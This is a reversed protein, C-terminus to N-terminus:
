VTSDLRLSVNSTSFPTTLPQSSGRMGVTRPTRRRPKVTSARLSNTIVWPAELFVLEMDHSLIQAMLLCFISGTIGRKQPISFADRTVRVNDSPGCCGVFFISFTWGLSGVKPCFSINVAEFSYRRRSSQSTRRSPSSTVSMCQPLATMSLTSFDASPLVVDSVPWRFRSPLTLDVLYLSFQSGTMSESISTVRRSSPKRKVFGVNSSPSSGNSKM